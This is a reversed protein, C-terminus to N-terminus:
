KPKVFIFSLHDANRDIINKLSATVSRESWSVGCVFYALLGHYGRIDGPIV